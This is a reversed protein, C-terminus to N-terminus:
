IGDQYLAPTLYLFKVVGFQGQYLTLYAGGGSSINPTTMVRQIPVTIDLVVRDPDNVYCVMRDTAGSGAGVCWRLPFIKLNIGQSKGINNELLYTLISVSGAASILQSAIYAYQAWPILITDAMGTVDYQSAAVTSVMATNVDYLIEAPTKNIWLKSGGAGTAVSSASINPNNVLGPKATSNFPGTYALQDLTKNWNLKIGKDLLDDLSRGVGQLKQMDIFNVKLVNGWNFTPYLDKTLNAQVTPILTTQNAQIGFGNPGSMGYDVFLNSTYDVWGGGSKVPMDRMWTVSTLPERVKPDRKELESELFVMGGAVAADMVQMRLRQDKLVGVGGLSVASDMVQRLLASDRAERAASSDGAPNKGLLEPHFAFKEFGSLMNIASM